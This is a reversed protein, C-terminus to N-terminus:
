FSPSSRLLRWPTSPTRLSNSGILLEEIKKRAAPDSLFARANLPVGTGIGYPGDSLKGLLRAMGELQAVAVVATKIRSLRLQGWVLDHLEKLDLWQMLTTPRYSAVLAEFLADYAKPHEGPWVHCETVLSRIKRPITQLYKSISNSM